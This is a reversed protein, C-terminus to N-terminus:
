GPRQWHNTLQTLQRFHHWDQEEPAFEHETPQVVSEGGHTRRRASSVGSGDYLALDKGVSGQDQRPVSPGDSELLASILASCNM